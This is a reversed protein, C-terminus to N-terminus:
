ASLKGQKESNTYGHHPQKKRQLKTLPSIKFQPSGTSAIYEM